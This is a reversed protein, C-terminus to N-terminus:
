CVTLAMRQKERSEAALIKAVENRTLLEPIRQRRKPVDIALEADDRHLVHVYFFRLGNLHLRCSAPSLQREKVLYLFYAQIDDTSIQDPRRHYYQALKIVADLYSQQTRESFGRVLMADIMKQRLPTM